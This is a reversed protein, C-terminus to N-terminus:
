DVDLAAANAQALVDVAPRGLSAAAAVVDDWEPSRNVIDGGVWALKVRIACGSVEVTATTRDLAVREVRRSRVGITSTQRIMSARVAELGDPHALASFTHAPRGKKMVIPTVWADVAGAALAAEIAVPWVRPDLDDVNTELVVMEDGRGAPIGPGTSAGASEGVVLRLANVVVDTDRGGAGVGTATVTMPPMPGWVDVVDALLAAGTPTTAEFPAAGAAVPAIGRLLELVAPGPVPIPGHASRATGTGLSLTTCHVADLGLQDVGICCGVVDVIADLAGVEHFHVEEVSVGHVAAEANALRTFVAAARSRLPEDLPDLLAIVDALHRRSEADPVVVDVKTAVVGGREVPAVTLEVPLELPALGARLVEIPVGAGVLAGLLMDGSAGASGDIWGIM